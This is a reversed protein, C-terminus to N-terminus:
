GNVTLYVKRLLKIVESEQRLMKPPPPFPLLFTFFASWVLSLSFETSITNKFERPMIAPYDKHPFLQLYKLLSDQSIMNEYFWAMEEM